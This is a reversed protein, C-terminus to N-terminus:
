SLRIQVTGSANYYPQGVLVGGGAAATDDAFPGAFLNVVNNNGPLLVLSFLLVSLTLLLIYSAIIM